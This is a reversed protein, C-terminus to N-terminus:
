DASAAARARVWDLYSRPPAFALVLLLAQALGTGSSAVLIGPSRLVDVRLATAGTTLIVGATASLAM